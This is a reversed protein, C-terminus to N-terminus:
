LSFTHLFSLMDRRSASELLPFFPLDNESDTAVFMYLHCDFFYKNRSSDWGWNCDPPSFKRRCGCDSGKPCEYIRKSRELRTTELPTRDGALSLHRPSILGMLVSADLFQAKYLWFILYFLNNNPLHIRQM